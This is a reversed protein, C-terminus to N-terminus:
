FATMGAEAPIVISDDNQVQKLIENHANDITIYSGDNFPRYLLLLRNTLIEFKIETCILSIAETKILFECHRNEIFNTYIGAEAPIVFIIL